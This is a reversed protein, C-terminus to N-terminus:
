PTLKVQEKDKSCVVHVHGGEELHQRRVQGAGLGDGLGLDGDPEPRDGLPLCQLLM